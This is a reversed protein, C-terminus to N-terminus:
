ILSLEMEYCKENEGCINKMEKIIRFGLKEYLKIASINNISVYLLVSTIKNLRMEQISEKLLKEGFGERRFNRDISISCIVSKKKFGKFSPILRIYYISYGVVQNQSKIVYFIKRLIKSYRILKDQRQNEFGEEQIRFVEPLMVDEIPIVNDKETQKWNRILHAGVTDRILRKFCM